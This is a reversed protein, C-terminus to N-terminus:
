SCSGGAGQGGPPHVAQTLQLSRWPSGSQLSVGEWGVGSGDTKGAFLYNEGYSKKGLLNHGFEKQSEELHGDKGEQGRKEGGRGWSPLLLSCSHPCSM